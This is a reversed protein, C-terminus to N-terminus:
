KLMMKWTNNGSKLVYVSSTPATVSGKGQAMCQGAVNYLMLWAGYISLTRGDIGLGTTSVHANSVGTTISGYTYVTETKTHFSDTLFDDVLKALHGDANYEYRKELERSFEPHEYDNTKEASRILRNEADVEWVMTTSSNSFAALHTMLPGDDSVEDSEMSTVDWESTDANWVYQKSCKGLNTKYTYFEPVSSPRLVNYM